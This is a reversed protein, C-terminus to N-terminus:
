NMKKLFKRRWRWGRRTHLISTPSIKKQFWSIMLNRNIPHGSLWQNRHHFNLRTPLNAKPWCRESPSVKITAKNDLHIPAGIQWHFAKWSRYCYDKAKSFETRKKWAGNKNASTKNNKTNVLNTKLKLSNNLFRWSIRTTDQFLGFMKWSVIHNDIILKCLKDM